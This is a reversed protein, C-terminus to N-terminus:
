HCGTSPKWVSYCLWILPSWDALEIALLYIVKVNKFFTTDPPLAPCNNVFHPVNMESSGIKADL